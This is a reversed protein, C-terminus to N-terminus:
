TPSMPPPDPALPPRRGSGSGTGATTRELRERPGGVRSYAQPERKWRVRDISNDSNYFEDEQQQYSPAARSAKTNARESTEGGGGHGAATTRSINDYDSQHRHHNHGRSAAPRDRYEQEEYDDEVYANRSTRGGTNPPPPPPSRMRGGERPMMTSTGGKPRKLISKPARPTPTSRGGGGADRHHNNSRHHRSHKRTGTASARGASATDFGVLDYVLDDESDDDDYGDDDDDDDDYVQDTARPRRFPRNLYEVDDDEGDDVIGHMAQRNLIESTNREIGQIGQLLAGFMAAERSYRHGNGGASRNRSRHRKELATRRDRLLLDRAARLQEQEAAVAARLSMVDQGGGGVGGFGLGVPSMQGAMRSELEGLMEQTTRSLGTNVTSSAKPHRRLIHQIAEQVREELGVTAGNDRRMIHEVATQIKDELRREARERDRHKGRGRERGMEEELIRAVKREEEKALKRGLRKAVAAREDEWDVARRTDRSGGRRHWSRSRERHSHGRSPSRRRRAYQEPEYYTPPPATSTARIRIKPAHFHPVSPSPMPMPPPAGAMPPYYGPPPAPGYSAPGPPYPQPPPGPGYPPMMPPPPGSYPPRHSTTPPPPPPPPPGSSMPAFPNHGGWSNYPVVYEGAYSRRSAYSEDGPGYSMPPVSSYSGPFGFSARRSTRSATGDVPNTSIKHQRSAHPLLRHIRGHSQQKQQERTNSSENQGDELAEDSWLEDFDDDDIVDNGDHGTTSFNIRHQARYVPPSSDHQQGSEGQRPM